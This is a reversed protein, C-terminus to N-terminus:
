NNLLDSAKIRLRVEACELKYRLDDDIRIESNELSIVELSKQVEKLMNANDLLEDILNENM